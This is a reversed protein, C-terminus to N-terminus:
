PEWGGEWVGLCAFEKVIGEANASSVSDLVSQGSASHHKHKASGEKQLKYKTVLDNM